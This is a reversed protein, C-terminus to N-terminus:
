NVRKKLEDFLHKKAFSESSMAAHKEGYSIDGADLCTYRMSGINFRGKEDNILIYGWNHKLPDDHNKDCGLGVSLHGTLLLEGAVNATKFADMTKQIGVLTAFISAFVVRSITCGKKRYFSVAELILTEAGGGTALMTDVLILSIQKAECEPFNQYVGSITELSDEQRSIDICGSLVERSLVQNAGLLMPVGARLPTLLISTSESFDSSTEFFVEFCQRTINELSQRFDSLGEPFRDQDSYYQYSMNILDRVAEDVKRGSSIHIKSGDIQGEGYNVLNLKDDQIFNMKRAKEFQNLSLIELDTGSIHVDNM